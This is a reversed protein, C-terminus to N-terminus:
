FDDEMSLRSYKKMVKLLQESNELNEHNFSFMPPCYQILTGGTIKLISDSFLKEFLTLTKCSQSYVSVIGEKNWHADVHSVSPLVKQLLNQSLSDKLDRKKAPSIKSNKKRLIDLKERLLIQLLENPVKRKEIRMRLLFGSQSECNSLDWYDEELIDHEMLNLPRVWGVREKDSITKLKIHGALYKRFEKNLKTYNLKNFNLIKYRMLSLRGNQIGM